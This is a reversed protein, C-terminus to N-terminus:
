TFVVDARGDEYGGMGIMWWDRVSVIGVYRGGEPPAGAACYVGGCLLRVIPPRDCRDVIRIWRKSLDKRVVLQRVLV